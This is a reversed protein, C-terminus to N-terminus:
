AAAAKRYAEDVEQKSVPGIPLGGPLRAQGFIAETGSPAHLIYQKSFEMTRDAFVSTRGNSPNVVRETFIMPEGMKAGLVSRDHRDYEEGIDIGWVASHPKDVYEFLEVAFWERYAKNAYKMRIVGDPGLVVIWAPHPIADLLANTIGNFAVHQATVKIAAKVVEERTNGVFEAQLAKAKKTLYAAGVLLAGVIGVIGIIVGVTTRAWEPQSGAGSALAVDAALAAKANVLAFASVIPLAHHRRRM